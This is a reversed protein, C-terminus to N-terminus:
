RTADALARYLDEARVESLGSMCGDNLEIVVWNDRDTRAIDVVWFRVNDGVRAIVEQLFSEPVDRSDPMECELDDLHSSWYFGSALVKGDLIFFRYEESIPLGNLGVALRRLPIYERVYINQQGVVGDRLLNSHVELATMYDRAYCHTSWLLKKSNTAGKLIFPGGLKPVDELRFWTQPTVGTLDGYWNQLDAVYAHQRHTNIPIAGLEQLDQCLEHNYPLASYRPIVLEGPKILTRQEVVRFHQRAIELEGEEALAGRFYIVTDM